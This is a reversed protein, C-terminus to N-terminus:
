CRMGLLQEIFDNYFVYRDKPNSDEGAKGNILEGLKADCDFSTCISKLSTLLDSVDVVRVYGNGETDMSMFTERLLSYFEAEAAIGMFEDQTMKKFGNLGLRPQETNEEGVRVSDLVSRIDFLDVLQDQDQDVLSFFSKLSHVQVPNLLEVFKLRRNIHKKRGWTDVTELLHPYVVRNVTHAVRIQQLMTIVNPEQHLEQEEVIGFMQGFIYDDDMVPRSGYEEEIVLPPPSFAVDETYADGNKYKLETAMHLATNPRRRMGFVTEDVGVRNVCDNTNSIAQMTMWTTSVLPKVIM